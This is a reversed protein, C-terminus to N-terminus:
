FELNRSGDYANVRRWEQSNKIIEIFARGKIIKPIYGKKM